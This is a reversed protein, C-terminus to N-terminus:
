RMLGIQKMQQKFSEPMETAEIHDGQVPDQVSERYRKWFGVVDAPMMQRTESRYHQIVAKMGAEFTVSAPIIAMWAAVKDESFTFM